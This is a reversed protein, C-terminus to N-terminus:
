IDADDDDDDDDDCTMMPMARVRRPLYAPQDVREDYATLLLELHSDAEVQSFRCCQSWWLCAALPDQAHWTSSFGRAAAHCSVTIRRCLAGRPCRRGRPGAPSATPLSNAGSRRLNRALGNSNQPLRCPTPISRFLRTWHHQHCWCWNRFESSINSKPTPGLLVQRLSTIHIFRLFM